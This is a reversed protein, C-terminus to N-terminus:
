GAEVVVIRVIWGDGSAAAQANLVGAGYRYACDSSGNLPETCGRDSTSQPPQAFLADVAAPEAVLRAAARDGKRWAALLMNVAAVPTKQPTLAITTTTTTVVTTSVEVPPSSVTGSDKNCAGVAAAIAIVAVATSLTRRSM